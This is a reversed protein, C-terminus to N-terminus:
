CSAPPGAVGSTLDRAPHAAGAAAPKSEQDGAGIRRCHGELHAGAEVALTKHIVDGTVRASRAITVTPAKIQGSVAGDILINEASISGTIQAGNRVAVGRSDIDGEIKGEIHLEGKCYLNGVIRLDPGITSVRGLPGTAPGTPPAARPKPELKPPEPKPPDAVPRATIEPTKPQRGATNDSSGRSFM